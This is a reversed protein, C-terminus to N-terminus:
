TVCVVAKCGTKAAPNVVAWKSLPHWGLLEEKKQSRHKPAWRMQSVEPRATRQRKPRAETTAATLDVSEASCVVDAILTGAAELTAPPTGVVNTQM